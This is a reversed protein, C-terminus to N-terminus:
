SGTIALNVVMSGSASFIRLKLGYAYPNSLGM